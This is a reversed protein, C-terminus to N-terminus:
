ARTYDEHLSLWSASPPSLDTVNYRSQLWEYYEAKTAPFPKVSCLIGEGLLQEKAKLMLRPDEQSDDYVPGGDGLYGCLRAHGCSLESVIAEMRDLKPREGIQNNISMLTLPPRPRQDIAARLAGDSEAYEAQCLPRLEARLDAVAPPLDCGHKKKWDAGSGGYGIETIIQKAAGISVGVADAQSKRFEAVSAEDATALCSVTCPLGRARVRDAAERLHSAVLDLDYFGPIDLGFAYRLLKPMCAASFGLLFAPVSKEEEYVIEAPKDGGHYGPRLRLKLGLQRALDCESYVDM